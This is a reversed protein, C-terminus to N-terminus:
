KPRPRTAVSRLAFRLSAVEREIEGPGLAHLAGATSSPSRSCSGTSRWSSWSRATGSRAALAAATRRAGRAEGRARLAHRRVVRELAAQRRDPGRRPPGRAPVRRARRDGAPARPACRRAGARRAPARAAAAPERGTAARGGGAGARGVGVGGRAAARADRAGRRARVRARAARERWADDPAGGAGAPGRRGRRGRRAPRRASGCCRLRMGRARVCSCQGESGGAAALELQAARAEDARARAGGARRDAACRAGGCGLGGGRAVWRASLRPSRRRSGRAGRGDAGSCRQGAAGGPGAGRKRRERRQRRRPRREGAARREGGGGVRSTGRGGEGPRGLAPRHQRGFAHDAQTAHDRAATIDGTLLEAQAALLRAEALDADLGAAELEAVAATANTRAEAGLRASLLVECRDMLLLALPVGHARYEADVRDYWDLAAPVDGRRAAVWGLNHRVQTASLAQGISEHLAEARLFDAEAASFAGRYVELVGRNCLLRAEWLADGARRFTALPKRYGELAEDLRGLKQLIM